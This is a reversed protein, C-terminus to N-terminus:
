ITQRLQRQRMFGLGALALGLLAISGPEPIDFPETTIAFAFKATTHAAEDTSFGFCSSGFGLLTCELEDLQALPFANNSEDLVFISAFYTRDFDDANGLIGDLGSDVYQFANNLTLTNSFGFLDPCGNALTSAQTGDACFGSGGNPYGGAGYAGSNATEQFKFNFILTPAAKQDADPITTNSDTDYYSPTVPTLTLTDTITAGTLTGYNASIPNNWHTISFGTGIQGALPDPAAGITTNVSGTVPGGGTLAATVGNGVTLASRNNDSDDGPSQFNGTSSGWSLEYSSVTQAGTFGGSSGPAGTWTPLSFTADTSYSWQTVPDAQALGAAVALALVAATAVGKRIVQKGTHKM